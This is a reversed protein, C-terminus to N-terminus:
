GLGCVLNHHSMDVGPDAVISYLNADSNYKVHFYSRLPSYEGACMKMNM